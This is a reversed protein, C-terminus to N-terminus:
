AHGQAANDNDDDDDAGDDAQAEDADSHPDAPDENTFRTKQFAICCIVRPSNNYVYVERGPRVVEAHGDKMHLVAGAVLNGMVTKKAIQLSVNSAQTFVM